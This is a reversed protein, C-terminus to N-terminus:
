GESYADILSTIENHKFFVDLDPYFNNALIKQFAIEHKEIITSELFNKFYSFFSEDPEYFSKLEELSVIKLNTMDNPVGVDAKEHILHRYVKALKQLTIHDFDLYIIISKLFMLEKYENTQTYIYQSCWHVSISSSVFGCVYGEQWGLIKRDDRSEEKFLSELARCFYEQLDNELKETDTKFIFHPYKLKLQDKWANFILSASNKIKFFLPSKELIKLSLLHDM